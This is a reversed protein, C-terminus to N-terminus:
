RRNRRGPRVVVEVDRRTEDMLEEPVLLRLEVGEDVAAAGLIRRRQAHRHLLDHGRVTPM